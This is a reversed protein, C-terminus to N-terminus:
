AQVGRIIREVTEIDDYSWVFRHSFGLRTLQEAWWRQLPEVTGGKPRKTEAFM